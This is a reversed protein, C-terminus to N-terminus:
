AATQSATLATNKEQIEDAMFHGDGILGGGTRVLRNSAEKRAEIETHYEKHIALQLAANTADRALEPATIKSDDREVM